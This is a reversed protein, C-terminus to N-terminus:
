PIAIEIKQLTVPSLTPNNIIVQLNIHNPNSGGASARIPDPSPIFLYKLTLPSSGNAM